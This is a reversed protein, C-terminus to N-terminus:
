ERGPNARFSSIQEEAKRGIGSQFAVEEAIKLVHPHAWLFKVTDEKGLEATMLQLEKSNDLMAYYVICANFGAMVRQVRISERGTLRLQDKPIRYYRDFLDDDPDDFIEWSMLLADNYKIQNLQKIIHKKGSVEIEKNQDSGLRLSREIAIDLAPSNLVSMANKEFEQLEEVVSFDLEEGTEAARAKLQEIFSPDMVEM